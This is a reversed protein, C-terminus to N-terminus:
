KNEERCMLKIAQCGTLSAIVVGTYPATCQGAILLGELEQLKQCEM